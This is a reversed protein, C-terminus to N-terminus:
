RGDKEVAAIAKDFESPDMRWEQVDKSRKRKGLKWGGITRPPTWKASYAIAEFKGVVYKQRLWKMAEKASRFVHGDLLSRGKKKKLVWVTKTMGSGWTICLWVM